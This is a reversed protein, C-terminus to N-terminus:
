NEKARTQVEKSIRDKTGQENKVGTLYGILFGGVLGSIYIIIKIVM